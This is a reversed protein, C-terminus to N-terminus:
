DLEHYTANANSLAGWKVKQEVRCVLGDFTQSNSDEITMEYHVSKHRLPPPIKNYNTWRDFSMVEAYQPTRCERVTAELGNVSVGLM